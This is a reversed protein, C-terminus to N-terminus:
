NTQLSTRSASNTKLLELVRRADSVVRAPLQAKNLTERDTAALEELAEIVASLDATPNKEALAEVAQLANAVIVSRKFTQEQGGVETKLHVLEQIDLMEALTEASKDNGHHALGVAANYRTDADPDDALTELLELAEPTGVQGLAYATQSRIVPVEDAALRALAPYLEAHELEQPPDLRQLNYARVALAELAGQRVLQESPHRDTEAAKLLVGIGDAVEFEGLARALFYRLTIDEEQMGDDAGSQDIERELIRALHNAAEANRKFEAFRKNRLMDALESARQWRAVSPGQELGQVMAEPSTRRVLWTFTLWVSVIVLVILAPVVFLQIIFRASPPEVPPLLDSGAPIAPPDTKSDERQTPLDNM